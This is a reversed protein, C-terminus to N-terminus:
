GCPHWQRSIGRDRDFSPRSKGQAGAVMRGVFSSQDLGLRGGDGCGGWGPRGMTERPKLTHVPKSHIGKCSVAMTSLGRALIVLRLKAPIHM